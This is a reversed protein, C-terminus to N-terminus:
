HDCGCRLGCKLMERLRVIARMSSEDLEVKCFAVKRRKVHRYRRQEWVKVKDCAERMGGLTTVQPYESEGSGRLSLCIAGINRGKLM